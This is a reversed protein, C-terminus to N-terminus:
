KAPRSNGPCQRAVYRFLLGDGGAASIFFTGAEEPTMTFVAGPEVWGLTSSADSEAPTDILGVRRSSLNAVRLPQGLCVSTSTPAGELEEYTPQDALLRDTILFDADAAGAQVPAVINAPQSDASPRTGGASAAASQTGTAPAQVAAKERPPVSWRGLLFGAVLFIIAVIVVLAIPGIAPQRVKPSSLTDVASDRERDSM